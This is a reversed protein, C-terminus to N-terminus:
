ESDTSANTNIGTRGTSLSKQVRRISTLYAALKRSEENPENPGSSVLEAAVVQFAYEAVKHAMEVSPLMVTVPIGNLQVMEQSNSPTISRAKQYRDLSDSSMEKKIFALKGSTPSPTHRRQHQDLHRKVSTVKSVKKGPPAQLQTDSKRKTPAMGEEEKLKDRKPCSCVKLHLSKKGLIQGQADELSFIVATARRNIIRCSNQCVFQLSVNLGVQEQATMGLPILVALRDKFAVGNETGVYRASPNFCRMVHAKVEDPVKANNNGGGRHNECRYVPQHMDEPASCVMMVRLYLEQHTLTQYSINFTCAQDMKVFVKNLRASFMWSSKGSTEGSLEVNFNYAPNELEDLTPTRDLHELLAMVAPTQQIVTLKQDLEQDQMLLAGEMSEIKLVDHYDLLIDSDLDMLENTPIQILQAADCEDVAHSDQHGYTQNTDQSDVM